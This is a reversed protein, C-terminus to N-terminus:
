PVAAGHVACHGHRARSACGSVSRSMRAPWSHWGPCAPSRPEGNRVSEEAAIAFAAGSILLLRDLQRVTLGLPTPARAKYARLINAGCQACRIAKVRLPLGQHMEFTYHATGCKPCQRVRTAVDRPEIVDTGGATRDSYCFLTGHSRSARATLGLNPSPSVSQVRVWASM